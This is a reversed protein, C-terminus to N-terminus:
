AVHAWSRRRCIDSITGTSVSYSEALTKMSVGGARAARIARIDDPSFPARPQGGRSAIFKAWEEPTADKTWHRGKAAMDHMNDAQSGIFHHDPRVCAPTDCTHCLHKGAPIPGYEWEWIVRHALVNGMGRRGRNVVGYGRITAGTWLWCEETKEVKEWVREVLTRNRKIVM